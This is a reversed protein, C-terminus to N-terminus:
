WFKGFVLHAREFHGVNKLCWAKLPLIEGFRTVSHFLDNLWCCFPFYLYSHIPFVDERSSSGIPNKRMQSNSGSNKAIEFDDWLPHFLALASKSVIPQFSKEDTLIKNM